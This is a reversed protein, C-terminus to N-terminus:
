PVGGLCTPPISLQHGNENNAATCLHTTMRARNPLLQPCETYARERSAFPSASKRSIEITSATIM